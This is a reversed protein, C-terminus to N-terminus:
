SLQPIQVALVPFRAFNLLGRFVCLGLLRCKRCSPRMGSGTTRESEWQPLLQAPQPSVSKSPVSGCLLWENAYIPHRLAGSM